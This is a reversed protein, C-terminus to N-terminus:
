DINIYVTATEENGSADRVTYTFTHDNCYGHRPTYIISQGDASITAHGYQPQTVAIITLETGLDNDLVTLTRSKINSSAFEASTFNYLSDKGDAGDDVADFNTGTGTSSLTITVTAPASVMGDTDVLAYTFSDTEGSGVATPKYKVTGTTVSGVADANTITGKSPQTLIRITVDGPYQDGSLIDLAVEGQSDLNGAVVKYADDDPVLSTNAEGVTITVTGVATAGNGDSITYTFTDTGTFGAAPVYSLQGNVLSVAGGKTSTEDHSALMLTDGDPDTDNALVNITTKADADTTVYDSAAIPSHNTGTDNANVKIM